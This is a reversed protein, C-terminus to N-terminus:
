IRNYNVIGMLGDSEGQCHIKPNFILDLGSFILRTVAGELFTITSNIFFDVAGRTKIAVPM